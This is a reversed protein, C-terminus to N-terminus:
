INGNNVKYLYIGVSITVNTLLYLYVIPVYTKGLHLSPTFAIDFNIIIFLYGYHLYELNVM